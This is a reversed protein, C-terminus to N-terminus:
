ARFGCGSRLSELRRQSSARGEPWPSSRSTSIRMLRCPSSPRHRLMMQSEASCRSNHYSDVQESGGEHGAKNSEGEGPEDKGGAAAECRGGMSQRVPALEEM